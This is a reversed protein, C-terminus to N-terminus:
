PGDQVRIRRINVSSIEGNRNNRAISDYGLNREVNSNYRPLKCKLKHFILCTQFSSKLRRSVFNEFHTNM